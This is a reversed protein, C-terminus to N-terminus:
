RYYKRKQNKIRSSLVNLLHLMQETIPRNAHNVYARCHFHSFFSRGLNCCLSVFKEVVIRNHVAANEPAFVM